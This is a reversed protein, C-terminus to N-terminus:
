CIKNLIRCKSKCTISIRDVIKLSIKQFNLQIADINLERLKEKKAQTGQEALLKLRNSQLRKKKDVNIKFSSTLHNRGTPM